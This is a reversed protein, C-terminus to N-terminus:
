KNIARRRPVLVTQVTGSKTGGHKAIEQEEPSLFDLYIETTKVSTHGLHKSLRYIDMEGSRLAEVAFLHRLDHFRFDKFDKGADKLKKRVKRKLHTFDSSAQSFPQGDEKTFFLTSGLTRPQASFHAAAADSLDITRRKSRKGIVTLTRRGADLAKDRLHVLENQRCGTLEAAVIFAAFRPTAEELVQNIAERTPLVIPDRREKVTRRKSLTPNGERWEEGEAYELVRSIATLDRRITAETVGQKRREKIITSIVKGDISAVDYPKLFPEVIMLSTAYRVATKPAYHGPTAEVWAAVAELWMVKHGSGAQQSLEEIRTDRIKRAAKVDRTRLSERYEEGRITARLWWIGGRRYLNNEGM